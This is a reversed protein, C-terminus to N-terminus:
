WRFKEVIEKARAIAKEEDPKAYNLRFSMATDGGVAHVQYSHTVIEGKRIKVKMGVAQVRNIEIEDWEPSVEFEDFNKAFGEHLVKAYERSGKQGDAVLNSKKNIELLGWTGAFDSAWVQVRYVEDDVNPPSYLMAGPLVVTAGFERSRLKHPTERDWSETKVLDIKAAGMDMRVLERNEGRSVYFIQKISTEIKACSFKGAPTEIEEHGTVELDFPIPMGANHAACIITKQKTGIEQKLARMIQIAQENEFMPIQPNQSKSHDYSGKDAGTETDVIKVKGGEKFNMSVDGFMELSWRASLCQYDTGKFVSRSLSKGGASRVAISEWVDPSKGALRTALLFNGIVKGNPIRVEYTDLSGDQWPTGVFEWEPPSMKAAKLVWKNDAPFDARLAKLHHKMREANGLKSFCEALRYRAEAAFRQSKATEKLVAQYEAIAGKLDGEASQLQVGQELREAATQGFAATMTFMVPLVKLIQKTKMVSLTTLM